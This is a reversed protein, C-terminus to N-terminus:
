VDASFLANVKLSVQVSMYLPFLELGLLLCILLHKPLEGYRRRRPLPPTNM